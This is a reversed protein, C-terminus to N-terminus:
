STKKKVKRYFHKFSTKFGVFYLRERSEACHKGVSQLSFLVLFIHVVPLCCCHGVKTRLACSAKYLNMKYRLALDKHITGSLHFFSTIQKQFKRYSRYIRNRHKTDALWRRRHINTFVQCTFSSFPSVTALLWIKKCYHVVAHLINWMHCWCIKRAICKDATMGYGPLLHEEM